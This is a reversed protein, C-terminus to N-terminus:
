ASKEKVLKRLFELQTESLKRETKAANIQESVTDLNAGEAISKVFDMIGVLEKVTIKDPTERLKAIYGKVSDEVEGKAMEYLSKSLHHIEEETCGEPLQDGYSAFFDVVEYDHGEVYNKLNIKQSFSRAISFIKPVVLEM